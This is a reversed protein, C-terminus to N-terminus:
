VCIFHLYTYVTCQVNYFVSGDERWLPRGADVFGGVTLCFFFQEWIGFPHKIGRCVPRSVTPRLMVKAKVKLILDSLSNVGSFQKSNQLTPMGLHSYLFHYSTKTVHLSLEQTLIRQCSVSPSFMTFNEETRWSFGPITGRNPWPGEGGRWRKWRGDSTM